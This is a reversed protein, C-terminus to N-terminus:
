IINIVTCLNALISSTILHMAIAYLHECITFFGPTVVVIQQPKAHIGLLQYSIQQVQIYKQCM